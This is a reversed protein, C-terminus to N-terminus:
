DFKKDTVTPSSLEKQLRRIYALDPNEKKQEKTIARKTKNLQRKTM